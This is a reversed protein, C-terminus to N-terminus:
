WYKNVTPWIMYRIWLEISLNALHISWPWTVVIVTRILLTLTPNMDETAQLAIAIRNQVMECRINQFFYQFDKQACHKHHHYQYHYHHHKNTVYLIRGRRHRVNPLNWSNMQSSNGMSGCFNVARIELGGQLVLTLKHLGTAQAISTNM